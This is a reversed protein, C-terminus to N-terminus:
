PKSGRSGAGSPPAGGGIEPPSACGGLDNRTWGTPSARSGASPAGGHGDTQLPPQGAPIQTMPPATDLATEQGAPIGQRTSQRWNPEQRSVISQELALPHWTRQRPSPAQVPGMWQPGPGHLTSHPALPVDFWHESVMSQESAALQSTAQRPVLLQASTTQPEPRQLASQLPVLAQSRTRQLSDHPQATLQSGYEQGSVSHGGPQARRPPSPHVLEAAPHSLQWYRALVSVETVGTSVWAVAVVEPIVGSSAVGLDAPPQL